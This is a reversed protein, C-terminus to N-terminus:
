PHPQNDIDLLPHITTASPGRQEDLTRNGRSPETAALPRPRAAGVEQEGRNAVHPSISSRETTTFRGPRPAMTHTTM